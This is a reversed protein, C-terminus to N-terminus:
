EAIFEIAGDDYHERHEAGSDYEYWTWAASGFGEIRLVAGDVSTVAPGALELTQRGDLVVKLKEREVGVFTLEHFNDHPRGFWGDPLKLGAGGWRAFFAEVAERSREASTM